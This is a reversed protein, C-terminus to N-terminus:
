VTNKGTQVQKIATLYIKRISNQAERSCVSELTTLLDKNYKTKLKIIEGLALAASLRVVTGRDQYNALLNRVANDLNDKFLFATNAIGKREGM